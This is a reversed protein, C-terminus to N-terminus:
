AKEGAAAVMVSRSRVQLIIILGLAFFLLL